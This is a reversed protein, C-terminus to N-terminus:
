VRLDCDYDCNGSHIALIRRCLNEPVHNYSLPSVDGLDDRFGEVSHFDDRFGAESHFEDHFLDRFEDRVEECVGDVGM